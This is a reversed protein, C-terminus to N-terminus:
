TAYGRERLVRAVPADISLRAQVRLDGGAGLRPTANDAVDAYGCEQRIRSRRRPPIDLFKLQSRM